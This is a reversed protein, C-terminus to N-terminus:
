CITKLYGGNEDFVITITKEWTSIIDGNEDILKEKIEIERCYWHKVNEGAEDGKECAITYPPMDIVEIEITNSDSKLVYDEIDSKKVYQAISSDSMRLGDFDPCVFPLPSLPNDINTCGSSILTAILLISVM